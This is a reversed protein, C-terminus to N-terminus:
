ARASCVQISKEKEDNLEKAHQSTLQNVKTAWDAKLSDLEATRASLAEQAHTLQQSLDSETHQLKSYLM